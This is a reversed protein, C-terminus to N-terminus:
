AQSETRDILGLLFTEAELSNAYTLTYATISRLWKLFNVLSKETVPYGIHLRDHMLRKLVALPELVHLGAPASANYIPFVITRARVMPHHWGGQGPVHKMHRDGLVSEHAKALEPFLPSLHNWAGAKLSHPMPWPVIDGFPAALPVMDDSLYTFGRRSLYAALTSKGSGSTGLFVLGHEKLCVSAGHLIALWNTNPHMLELISQLVAGIAEGDTLAEIRRTGVVIEYRDSRRTVFIQTAVSTPETTFPSLVAALHRGVDDGTSIVQVEFTEIKYFYSRSNDDINSSAAPHQSISCSNFAAAISAVEELAETRHLAFACVLLDAIVESSHGRSLAEAIANGTTNLVTLRGSRLDLWVFGADFPISIASISTLSGSLQFAAGTRQASQRM